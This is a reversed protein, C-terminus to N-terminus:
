GEPNKELITLRGDKNRGCSTWGAMKFCYGPNDSRVKADWVYTFLREGPWRGWAMEEAALILDSSLEPGENRFVACNVGEQGVDSIFKRWVFLADARLTLLVMKQGPGVFLTRRRGNRYHRASYHRHYLAIGRPDGDHIGVWPGDLELM